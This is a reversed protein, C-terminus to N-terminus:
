PSNRQRQWQKQNEALIQIAVPREEDAVTMKQITRLPNFKAAMASVFESVVLGPNGIRKCLIRFPLSTVDEMPALVVCPDVAIDGIQFLRSAPQSELSSNRKEIM